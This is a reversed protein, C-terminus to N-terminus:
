TAIENSRVLIATKMKKMVEGLCLNRFSRTGSSSPLVLVSIKRIMKSHWPFSWCNIFICLCVFVRGAPGWLQGREHGGRSQETWGTM